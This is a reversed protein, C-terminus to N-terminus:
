RNYKGIDFLEFLGTTSSLGNDESVGQGIVHESHEKAEELQDSNNDSKRLASQYGIPPRSEAISQESQSVSLDHDVPANPDPAASREYRFCM